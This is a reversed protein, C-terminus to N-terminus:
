VVTGRGIGYDKAVLDQVTSGTGLVTVEQEEPFPPRTQTM